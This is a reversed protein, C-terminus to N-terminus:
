PYRSGLALGAAAAALGLLLTGVSAALGRGLMDIEVACTSYTTVILRPTLQAGREGQGQSVDDADLPLEGSSEGQTNGQDMLWM